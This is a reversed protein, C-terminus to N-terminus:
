FQYLFVLHCPIWWSASPRDVITHTTKYEWEILVVTSVGRRDAMLLPKPPLQMGLFSVM